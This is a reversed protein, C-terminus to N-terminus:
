VELESFILEIEWHATGFNRLFVLVSEIKGADLIRSRVSLLEEVVFDYEEFQNFNLSTVNLFRINFPEYDDIEEVWKLFEFQIERKEPLFKIENLALDHLDSFSLYNLVDKEKLRM